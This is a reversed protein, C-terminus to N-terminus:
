PMYPIVDIEVSETNGEGITVPHGRNEYNQMFDADFWAGPEVDEWAFVTYRGPPVNISFKGSADPKPTLFLNTRHRLSPEPAIVITANAAPERRGNLIRGELKGTATSVVVTLEGEPQNRIHLGDALVEQGGLRVSKVYGGSRDLVDSSVQYDGPFVNQLVFTGDNAMSTTASPMTSILPTLDILRLNNPSDAQSAVGERIIRGKFTFGSSAMVRVNSVDSNGVELEVIGFESPNPLHALNSSNVLAGPIVALFYSGSTVGGIEFTGNSNSRLNGPSISASASSRLILVISMSESAGAASLTVGRIKHVRAPLATINVGSVTEAARVAVPAAEQAVATGPYYVTVPAEEAVTGDGLMRSTVASGMSAGALTGDPKYQNVQPATPMVNVVYSGPALWFLRYEGLDNTTVSQVVSLTRGRETYQYKLAQVAARSVPEGNRDVIRGSIGGAPMLAIQIDKLTQGAAIVIPTERGNAGKQGYKASVFGPRSAELRYSGSRLNEFLFRGEADSVVTQMSIGASEQSRLLTEIQDPPLNMLLSAPISTQGLNSITSLTMAVKPLREGSAGVVSGEISATRPAQPTVTQLFLIAVATKLFSM